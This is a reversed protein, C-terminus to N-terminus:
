KKFIGNEKVEIKGADQLQTLARKFNKKSLGFTNKILEADSKYNYPLMGNSEELLTMVKDSAADTKAGGIPQLSIDLNGDPRINKVYGKKSDGVNVKEFIENTFIMGEYKHDVIVKYGMPTKAMVLLDVENHKHLGIVKHTLYKSLKEEGILRHSQEDYSVHLIRKDGVKFPTKQANRPVFLDKPLGWDVFAGFKTIDVVEFFGYEDLMATPYVTSAVLRDESDTYLFAEIVDNEQMTDTVYQNPLLVDKEDEAMLFIGPETIRDVRLRNIKGLELHQNIQM